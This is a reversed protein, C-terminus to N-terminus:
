LKAIIESLKVVLGSLGNAILGASIGVLLNSLQQKVGKFKKNDIDAVINEIKNETENDTVSDRIEYLISKIDSATQNNINISANDGVALNAIEGENHVEYKNGMIIDGNKVSQLKILLNNNFDLRKLVERIINEESNYELKGEIFGELKAIDVNKPEFVRALVIKEKAKDYQCLEKYSLALIEYTSPILQPIFSDGEINVTTFYRDVIKDYGGYHDLLKQGNEIAKQYDKIAFHASALSYYNTFYLFDDNNFPDELDRWEFSFYDELAKNHYYIAQPYEKLNSYLEGLRRYIKPTCNGYDLSKVYADKSEDVRGLSLLVDGYTEYIVVKDEKKMPMKLIYDLKVLAKRNMNAYHYQLSLNYHDNLEEVGQRNYLEVAKLALNDSDNDFVFKNKYPHGYMIGKNFKVDYSADRLLLECSLCEDISYDSLQYRDCCLNCIKKKLVSCYYVAINKNCDKCFFESPISMKIM